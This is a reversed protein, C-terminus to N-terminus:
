PNEEIPPSPTGPARPELVADLVLETEGHCTITRRWSAFGDRRIEVEFQDDQYRGLPVRRSDEDTPIMNFPITLGLSLVAVFTALAPDSRFYSIKRTQNEVDERYQLRRKLPTTGLFEGNLFAEASPESRLALVTQRVESSTSAATWDTACGAVASVVVATLLAVTLAHARHRTM